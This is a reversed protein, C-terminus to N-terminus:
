ACFPIARGPEVVGISPWYQEFLIRIASGEAQPRPIVIPRTPIRRDRISFRLSIRRSRPAADRLPICSSVRAVGSLIVVTPLNSALLLPPSTIVVFHQPETDFFLLDKVATGSGPGPEPHCGPLTSARLPVRPARHFTLLPPRPIVVFNQPERRHRLFASGEGGDWLVPRIGVGFRASGAHKPSGPEPHCRPAQFRRCLFPSIRM